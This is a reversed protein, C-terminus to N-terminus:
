SGGGASPQHLVSVNLQEEVIVGEDKYSVAEQEDSHLKREVIDYCPTFM